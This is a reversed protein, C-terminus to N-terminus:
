NTEANTFATTALGLQRHETDFVSYYRELFAMGCVFNVGPLLDALDQIVLYILDESGGLLTNLARPWIQANPILEFSSGGINFVLPQLKKYQAQTIYLLGITENM